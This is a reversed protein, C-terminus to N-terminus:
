YSLLLLFISALCKLQEWIWLFCWTTSIIINRKGTPWSSSFRQSNALYISWFSQPTEQERRLLTAVASSRTGSIGGCAVNGMIGFPPVSAAIREWVNFSSFIIFSAGWIKLISISLVFLLVFYLFTALCQHRWSPSPVQSWLLSPIQIIREPLKPQVESM